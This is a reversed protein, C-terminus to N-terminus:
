LINQQQAFVKKMCEVEKISPVLSYQGTLINFIKKFRRCIAYFYTLFLRIAIIIQFFKCPM